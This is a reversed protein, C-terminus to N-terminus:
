EEERRALLLARFPPGAPQSTLEAAISYPGYQPCFTRDEVVDSTLVLAVDSWGGEPGAILLRQDDPAGFLAQKLAGVTMPENV